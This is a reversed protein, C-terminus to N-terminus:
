GSLQFSMVVLTGTADPEIQLDASASRMFRLGLGMGPNSRTRFGERGVGFDRVSVVVRDGDLAATVVAEGSGGSPYAHRIVNTIAETVALGVAALDVGVGAVADRVQTRLWPVRSPTAVFRWEGLGPGQKVM